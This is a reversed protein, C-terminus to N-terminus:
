ASPRARARQLAAPEVLDSRWASASRTSSPRRRAEAQLAELAGVKDSFVEPTVEVQVEMQDLGKERTLVIQYHPLTGEM